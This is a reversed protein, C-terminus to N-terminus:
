QHGSPKIMVGQRRRDMIWGGESPWNLDLSPPPFQWVQCGFCGLEAEDHLRMPQRLRLLNITGPSPREGDERVSRRGAGGIDVPSGSGADVTMSHCKRASRCPVVTEDGETLVSADSRIDVTNESPIRM